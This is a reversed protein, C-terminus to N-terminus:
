RAAPGSLFGILSVKEGVWRGAEARLLACAASSQPQRAVDLALVTPFVRLGDRAIARFEPNTRLTLVVRKDEGVLVSHHRM